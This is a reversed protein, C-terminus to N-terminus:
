KASPAESSGGLQNFEGSVREEHGARQFVQALAGPFTEIEAVRQELEAVRQELEAVRLALAEILASQKTPKSNM